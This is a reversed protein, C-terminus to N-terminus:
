KDKSSKYGTVTIAKSPCLNACVECQTCSAIDVIQPKKDTGTELIGLPCVGICVLGSCPACKSYDISVYATHKDM